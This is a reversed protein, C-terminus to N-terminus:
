CVATLFLLLIGELLKGWVGLIASGPRVTGLLRRPM